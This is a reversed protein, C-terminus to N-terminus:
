IILHIDCIPQVSQVNQFGNQLRFKYYILDCQHFAPDFGSNVIM